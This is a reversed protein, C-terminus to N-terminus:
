DNANRAAFITNASKHIRVIGVGTLASPAKVGNRPRALRSMLGPGAVRPLGASRRRPDCARVIRFQVEDIPGRSVWRGATIPARSATVIEVAVAHQREVRVC